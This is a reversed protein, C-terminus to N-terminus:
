LRSLLVANKPISAADLFRLPFQHRLEILLSCQAVSAKDRIAQAAIVNRQGHAAAPMM